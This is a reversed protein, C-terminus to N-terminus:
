EKAEKTEFSVGPKEEDKAKPVYPFPETEGLQGAFDRRFDGLAPDNPMVMLAGTPHLVGAAELIPGAMLFGAPNQSSQLDQVIKEIPTSRLESPVAGAQKDVLRFVWEDGNAAEFRLNKTQMGGGEKLPKLGGPVFTQLNLVPVRVPTTWLARYGQGDFWRVVGDGRYHAGAVVTASEAPAAPGKAAKVRVAVDKSPPLPTSPAPQQAFSAAPVAIGVVVARVIARRVFFRIFDRM